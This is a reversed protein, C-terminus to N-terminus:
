LFIEPNLIETDVKLIPLDTKSDNGFYFYFSANKFDPSHAISRIRLGWTDTSLLEDAKEEGIKKDFSFGNIKCHLNNFYRKEENYESTHVSIKEDDKKVLEYLVSGNSNTKQIGNKFHWKLYNEIHRSAIVHGKKYHDSLFFAGGESIDEMGITGDLKIFNGSFEENAEKTIHYYHAGDEKFGNLKPPYGSEMIEKLSKGDQFYLESEEGTKSHYPRLKEKLWESFASDSEQTKYIKGVIREMVETKGQGGDNLEMSFLPQIVALSFLLVKTKTKM